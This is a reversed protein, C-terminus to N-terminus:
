MTNQEILAFKLNFLGLAPLGVRTFLV